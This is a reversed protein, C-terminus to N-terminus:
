IIYKQEASNNYFTTVSTRMPILVRHLRPQYVALCRPVTADSRTCSAIRSIRLAEIVPYAKSINTCDPCSSRRSMNMCSNTMFCVTVSTKGM